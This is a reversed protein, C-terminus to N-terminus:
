RHSRHLAHRKAGKKGKGRCSNQVKPTADYVKGNQGTLHVTAHTKAKPSCLNESNVLLGKKGGQMSLVFKTVPADPVVEFTNRIGGGKGTDIRGALNISIQGGLAAVLDPLAHTSSRLYVPGQLPNDLL